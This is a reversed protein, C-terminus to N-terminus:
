KGKSAQKNPQWSLSAAAGSVPVAGQRQLNREPTTSRLTKARPERPLALTLCGYDTRESGFVETGFLHQVRCGDGNREM